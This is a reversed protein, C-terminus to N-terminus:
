KFIDKVFNKLSFSKKIKKNIYIDEKQILLNGLYVSIYGVKMDKKVHNYPKKM